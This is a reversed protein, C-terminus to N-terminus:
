DLHQLPLAKINNTSNVEFKQYFKTDDQMNNVNLITKFNDFVEEFFKDQYEEPHFKILIDGIVTCGEIFMMKSKSKKMKEWMQMIYKSDIPNLTNIIKHCIITYLLLTEDFSYLDACAFIYELYEPLFLNKPQFHIITYKLIYFNKSEDYIKM